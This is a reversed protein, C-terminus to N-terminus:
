AFKDSFEDGDLIIEKIKWKLHDAIRYINEVSYDNLIVQKDDLFVAHWDNESCTYITIKM